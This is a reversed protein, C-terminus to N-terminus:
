SLNSSVIINPLEIGFVCMFMQNWTLKQIIIILMCISQKVYNNYIHAIGRWNNPYHAEPPLYSFYLAYLLHLISLHVVLKYYSIWKVLSYCALYCPM